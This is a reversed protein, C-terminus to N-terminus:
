TTPNIPSLSDLGASSFYQCRRVFHNASIFASPPLPHPTPNNCAGVSALIGTCILMSPVMQNWIMPVFWHMCACRAKGIWDVSPYAAPWDNHLSSRAHANVTPYLLCFLSHVGIKKAPMNDLTFAAALFFDPATLSVCCPKLRPSHRNALLRAPHSHSTGDRFSRAFM